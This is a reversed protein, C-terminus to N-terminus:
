SKNLNLKFPIRAASEHREGAGLLGILGEAGGFSHEVVAKDLYDVM